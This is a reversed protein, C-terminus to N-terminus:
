YLITCAATGYRGLVKGGPPSSPSLNLIIVIYLSSTKIGNCEETVQIMEIKVREGLFLLLIFRSM